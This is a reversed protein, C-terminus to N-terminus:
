IARRRRFLRQAAKESTVGHLRDIEVARLMRLEHAGIRPLRVDREEPTRVRLADVEVQEVVIARVHWEIRRPLPEHALTLRLRDDEPSLVIEEERTFTAVGIQRIQRTGLHM